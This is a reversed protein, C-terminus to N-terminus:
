DGGGLGATGSDIEPPTQTSPVKTLAKGGQCDSVRGPNSPPVQVLVQYTVCDSLCRMLRDIQFSSFLIIIIDTNLNNM